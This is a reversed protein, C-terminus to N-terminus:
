KVRITFTNSVSTSGALTPAIDRGVVEIKWIGRQNFKISTSISSANQVAPAWASSGDPKTVCMAM